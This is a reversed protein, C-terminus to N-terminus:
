HNRQAALWVLRGARKRRASVQFVKIAPDVERANAIARAVDFASLPLLDTKNLVM